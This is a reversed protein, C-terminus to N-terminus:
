LSYQTLITATLQEQLPLWTEQLDTHILSVVGKWHCHWYVAAIPIWGHQLGTGLHRMSTNTRPRGRWLRVCTRLSKSNQIRLGVSQLVTALITEPTGHSPYFEHEMYWIMTSILKSTGHLPWCEQEMRNRVAVISVKQESNDEPIYHWTFYNDVSTESTRVAEMMLSVKQTEM